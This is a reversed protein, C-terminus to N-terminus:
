TGEPMMDSDLVWIVASGDDAYAVFASGDDYVDLELVEVDDSLQMEWPAEAPGSAMRWVILLALCAAVATLGRWIRLTRRVFRSPGAAQASNEINQWVGEWDADSPATQDVPLSPDVAASVDAFRNEAEPTSNLYEELAAVQEPTLDDLQGATVQELLEDLNDDAGTM